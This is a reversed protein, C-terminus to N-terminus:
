FSVPYSADLTSAIWAAYTAANNGAGSPTGTFEHTIPTAMGGDQSRTVPLSASLANTIIQDVNNQVCPAGNVLSGSGTVTQCNLLTNGSVSGFTMVCSGSGGSLGTLTVMPGGIIKTGDTINLTQSGTFTNVNTGGGSSVTTASYGLIFDGTGYGIIAPVTLAPSMATLANTALDLGSCNLNYFAQATVTFSAPVNELITAPEHAICGAVTKQRNILIQLAKFGGFSGGGVIIPRGAGYTVAIYQLVHDWWHVINNVFRSGHGTDNAVDNYIAQSGALNMFAEPVTVTMFLWGDASITNAFDGVRNYTGASGGNPISPAYSTALFVNLGNIWVVIGRRNGVGPDVITLYTAGVNSVPIEATGLSGSPLCHTNPV